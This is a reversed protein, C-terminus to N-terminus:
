ENDKIRKEVLNFVRKFKGKAEEMQHVAQKYLYEYAKQETDHFNGQRDIGLPPLDKLDENLVAKREVIELQIDSEFMITRDNM